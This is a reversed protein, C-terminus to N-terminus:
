REYRSLENESLRGDPIHFHSGDRNLRQLLSEVLVRAVEKDM